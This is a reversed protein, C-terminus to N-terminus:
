DATFPPRQALVDYHAFFQAEDSIPFSFAIRPMFYRQTYDEFAADGVNNNVAESAM